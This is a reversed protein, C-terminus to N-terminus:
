KQFNARQSILHKEQGTHYLRILEGLIAATEKLEIMDVADAFEKDSRDDDSDARDEDEDAEIPELDVSIRFQNLRDRNEKELADREKKREDKRLSVVKKDVNARRLDAQSLLFRFGENNKVRQQHNSIVDTLKPKANQHVNYAAAKIQAWPLANDLSREGHDDSHEATPFIVDPIVGRHQTSEGNVRFFQAITLKLRGLTTKIDVYRNLDIVSQVTGKGFTPEGVIIGRRYDQIAGAFIESASASSRDVLVALPGSYITKDDEDRYVKLDGSNEQVQVVPGSKIFLGTLSVAESLSGGGNGRLDVVIGDVGEAMLENILVQTDRTTSRYDKDGRQAAAFDMYFTPITIVGIRQPTSEGGLDIISKKAQQEELKIKNRVISITQSPGSLGKEKPLIALQVVSDKPGRILDVVDDLRWGVVDTLEGEAGQAVGVIRDDAHLQGSLDAPGGPIIRRVVTHEDVTQLVAGIGELSLSMNIDFNESTRPSFYATHPEVQTLYANIFFEYTDEAHYQSSRNKLREYRSRLTKKLESEEKNALLLSLVDNKVRKRWIEDLAKNNDAWAAERRDFQYDEDVSFDFPQELRMLAFEAREIRRQSFLEFIAFAPGLDGKLLSDDLLTEYQNFLAIDKATFFSRNPDLVKLYQELIAKSEADGLKTEKYHFNDIFKTILVTSMGHEPKPALSATNAHVLVPAAFCAFFACLISYRKIM